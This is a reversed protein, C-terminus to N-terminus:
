EEPQTSSIDSIRVRGTVPALIVYKWQNLKKSYLSISQAGSKPAGTQSFLIYSHSGPLNVTLPFTVNKIRQTNATVYYGYPATNYFFMAYSTSDVGANISIQQLWCIDAALQRCSNELEQKEVSQGLRPIAMGAFISLIAICILLEILTVGRQM